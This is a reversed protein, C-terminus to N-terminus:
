KKKLNWLNIYNDVMKDWTMKTVWKYANNVIKDEKGKNNIYYEIQTALEKPNDSIVIWDKFPTIKLYDEKVKNDYVAFVLKKSAFAELIALYRSVFAYKSNNYYRSVDKVFGKSEAIAATNKRYKGDGCVVLKFDINNKNLIKIASLYTLIGTHEDLRSAFVADYKYSKKKNPKFKKIDVAGYSIIDSKTKYWKEIFEGICINGNTLIETLKRIIINHLKIPFSEYGHFTVYIKKRPFLMRLPLIWIFVDHCHVIDSDRILKLNKIFWYWTMILGLYKVKGQKFRIVNIGNISESNILKSKFKTTVITVVHGRKKLVNCVKEVHKEVGGVHPFYLRSLFLINM